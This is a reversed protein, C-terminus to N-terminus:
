MVELFLIIILIVPDRALSRPHTEREHGATTLVLNYWVHYGEDPLVKVIRVPLEPICGDHGQATHQLPWVWDGQLRMDSGHALM